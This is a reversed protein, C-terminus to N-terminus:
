NLPRIKPANVNNTKDTFTNQVGIKIDKNVLSSDLVIHLIQIDSEFFIVDFDLM